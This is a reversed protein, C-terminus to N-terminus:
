GTSADDGNTARLERAATRVVHGLTRKAGVLEGVISGRRRIATIRDFLYRDRLTWAAEPELAVRWPLVREHASPALTPGLVDLM